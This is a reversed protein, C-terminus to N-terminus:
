ADPDDTEQGVQGAKAQIMRLVVTELTDEKIEIRNISPDLGYTRLLDPLHEPYNTVEHRDTTEGHSITIRARNNWMLQDPTDDALLVGEHLIALRDCFMAEDM